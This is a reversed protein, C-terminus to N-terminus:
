ASPYYGHVNMPQLHKTTDDFQSAKGLRSIRDEQGLGRDTFVNPRQFFRQPLFQQISEAPLYEGRGGAFDEVLVCAVDDPQAVFGNLGDITVSPCERTV